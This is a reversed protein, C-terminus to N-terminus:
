HKVTLIRKTTTYGARSVTITVSKKKTAKIHLTAHGGSDTIASVGAGSAKAGKVADPDTVTLKVTSGKKGNVKSPSAGVSLGPNVQTHWQGIGAVNGCLAVIDLRGAQANGELSYCSDLKPPAGVLVFPGFKAPNKASSRRAILQPAGSRRDIWFAWLRGASDAAIATLADNGLTTGVTIQKTTGVKFVFPKTATPYGEAGAIWVGGGPRAVIQTRSLQQVSQQAGQFDVSSGPVHVPVGTPEGTNRDLGQVWLGEDGTANSFFAVYADGGQDVATDPQYTCCLDSPTKVRFNPTNPDLGRHVFTGTGTGGFSILPTGDPQLAAGADSAYAADGKIVPGGFLSWPSGAAPATATNFDNNPDGTVTSHIGGFLTRLTGDPETVLDPVPDVSAWDEVVPNAAGPVGAPSVTVHVLAHQGGLSYVAHLVGDGTRALSVQNINDLTNPSIETWKGPSGAFASPAAALAAACVAVCLSRSPM